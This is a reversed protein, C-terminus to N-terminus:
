ALVLGHHQRRALDQRERGASPAGPKGKPRAAYAHATNMGAAAPASTGMVPFPSRSARPNPIEGDLGIAATATTSITGASTACSTSWSIRDPRSGSTTIAPRFARATDIHRKKPSIRMTNATSEAPTGSPTTDPKSPPTRGISAPM